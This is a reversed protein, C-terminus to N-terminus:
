CHLVLFDCDGTVAVCHAWGAAAKVVPAETPLPFAEPTEKLSFILCVERSTTLNFLFSFLLVVYAAIRVGHKGSTVYSQGLDDTSGWTILKGSESLVITIIVIICM